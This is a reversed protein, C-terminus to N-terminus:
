THPYAASSSSRSAPSRADHTVVANGDDGDRLRGWEEKREQKRRRWLSQWGGGGGGGGRSSRRFRAQALQARGKRQQLRHYIEQLIFTNRVLRLLRGARLFRFSRSARLIRAPGGAGSEAFFLLGFSYDIARPTVIRSKRVRRHTSTHFRGPGIRACWWWSTM